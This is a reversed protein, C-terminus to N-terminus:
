SCHTQADPSCNFTYTSKVSSAWDGTLLPCLTAKPTLAYDEQKELGVREAGTRHWSQPVGHVTAWWNGRDMRSGLCSYQLPNVHGGEPSRGSGPIM